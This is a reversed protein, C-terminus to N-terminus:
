KRISARLVQSSPFDSSNQVGSTFLPIIFFCVFCLLFSLCFFVACWLFLSLFFFFVCAAPPKVSGGIEDTGDCLLHAALIEHVHIDVVPRGVQALGVESPGQPIMCFSWFM